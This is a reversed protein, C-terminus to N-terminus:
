MPPRAGKALSRRVSEAEEPTNANALTREDPPVLINVYQENRILAKRPCSYGDNKHATLLQYSRPEWVTVLPEPLGDFPSKFTTAMLAPDRKKILYSLTETDLLPMDCAVVLWAVDPHTGFASLIAVLPGSGDVHDAITKYGAAIEQEQEQKCSIYVAACLGALMDAMYYRQESGHWLIKSKDQGMRTSKGGALVLGYLPPINNTEKLTV